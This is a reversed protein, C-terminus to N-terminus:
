VLGKLSEAPAMAFFEGASAIGFMRRGAVDRVAVVEDHVRHGLLESTEVSDAAHANVQDRAAQGPHGHVTVRRQVGLRNCRRQILGTTVTKGTGSPVRDM